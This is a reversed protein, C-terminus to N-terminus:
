AKREILAGAAFFRFFFRLSATQIPPSFFLPPALQSGITDCQPYSTGVLAFFFSLDPPPLPSPLPGDRFSELFFSAVLSGLLPFVSMMPGPLDASSSPFLLPFTQLYPFPSFKRRLPDSFFFSSSSCYLPSSLRAHFFWGSIEGIKRPVHFSLACRHLAPRSLSAERLPRM